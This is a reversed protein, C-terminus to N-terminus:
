TFPAKGRRIWGIAFDANEYVVPLPLEGKARRRDFVVYAIGYTTSLREFGGKGLRDFAKEADGQLRALLNPMFRETTTLLYTPRPVGLAEYRRMGEDLLEARSNYMISIMLWERVTGFSPRQSKDRWMYSLSPDVMFLSGEATNNKAWLQAELANRGRDIKAEAALIDFKPAAIAASFAIALFVAVGITPLRIRRAALPWIAAIFGVAVLTLSVGSYRGEPVGGALGANWYIGILVMILTSLSLGILLGTSLAAPRKARIAALLLRAIVLGPVLGVSSQFPLLLLMVALAREPMPGECLDIWLAHIIFLACIALASQGARHLALKILTPVQVFESILLGFFVLVLLAIVGAVVDSALAREDRGFVTLAWTALALTSLLPLLHADHLEWFVGLHFPFWHYNQARTLAVFWEPDVQGGTITGQGSIWLLLTVGGSGAIAVPAIFRALPPARGTLLRKILITSCFTVAFFAIIPHIAFLLVWVVACIVLRDRLCLAAVLLLGSFAFGYNWGYYPFFFRALDPALMSSMSVLTAGSAKMFLGSTPFLLNLSVYTASMILAIELVIMARWTAIVDLGIFMALPYIRFIISKLSEAAGSPFDNVFLEPRNILLAVQEPSLGFLAAELELHRTRFYVCIVVLTVLIVSAMLRSNITNAPM